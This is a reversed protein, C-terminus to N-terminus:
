LDTINIVYHAFLRRKGTGTVDSPVAVGTMSEATGGPPTIPVSAIDPSENLGYLIGDTGIM